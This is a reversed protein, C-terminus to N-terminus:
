FPIAVKLPATTILVVILGPTPIPLIIISPPAPAALKFRAPAAPTVMLKFPMEFM